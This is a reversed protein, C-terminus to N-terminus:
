ETEIDAQSRALQKYTSRCKTCSLQCIDFADQYMMAEKTMTKHHATDMAGKSRRDKFTGCSECQELHKVILKGNDGTSESRRHVAFLQLLPKRAVLNCYSWSDLVTVCEYGNNDDCTFTSALKHYEFKCEGIKKDLMRNQAVTMTVRAAFSTANEDQDVKSQPIPRMKLQKFNFM